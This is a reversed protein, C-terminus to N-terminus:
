VVLDKLYPPKYDPGKLVKGDERYIPLGTVADLKSMNSLHVRRFAEEIDWGFTVAYGYIVYLLDCLEKLLDEKTKASTVEYYEEQILKTRLEELPSMYEWEVGIPHNFVTHFEKLMSIASMTKVKEYALYERDNEWIKNTM